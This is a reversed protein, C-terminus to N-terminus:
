TRAGRTPVLHIITQGINVVLNQLINHIKVLYACCQAMKKGQKKHDNPIKRAAITFARYSWNLKAKVFARSL